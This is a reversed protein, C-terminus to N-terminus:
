APAGGPLRVGEKNRRRDHVVRSRRQRGCRARGVATSAEVGRGVGQRRMAGGASQGGGGGRWVWKFHCGTAAAGRKRRSENKRKRRGCSHVGGNREEAEHVRRSVPGGGGVSDKHQRAAMERGVTLEVRASGKGETPYDRV